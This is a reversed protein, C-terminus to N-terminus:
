PTDDEPELGGIPTIPPMLGALDFATQTQLAAYIAHNAIVNQVYQRTENFPICEIWIAAEMTGAEVSPRWRSARRPGANYAAAALPVSNDFKELLIKLYNGGVKLNTKHEGLQQPTFRQLGMKKATWIATSPMVQMLGFAGAHSRATPNFRSEQRILGYFFAPHIAVEKAQALIDTEFPQPYSHMFSPTTQMRTGAHICRNWWGVQCAIEAAALLDREDMGGPQHLAVAYTWQRSAEGELNLQFASLAARINPDMGVRKLDAKSPKLRKDAISIKQGLTDRALLGYYDDGKAIRSLIGRAQAIADANQTALHARALWYQWVSEGQQDAQMSQVTASVVSWDQQRLAARVKWARQRDTLYRNDIRAFLAYANPESRQAALTAITAEVQQQQTADLTPMWRELSPTLYRNDNVAMRILALAIWDSSPAQQGYRELWLYPQGFLTKGAPEAATDILTLAGLMTSRSDNEAGQRARAWILDASIQQDAALDSVAQQCRRYGPAEQFWLAIIAAADVTQPQGLKRQARWMGCTIQDDDRMRYGNHADILAPWAQRDILLLMWDNRLRDEWYTGQWRKFFANVAQPTANELNAKLTWYAGLSELPHGTLTPLLATLRATQNRAYAAQMALLNKDGVNSKSAAWSALPSALTLMSLLVSLGIIRWLHKSGNRQSERTHTTFSM